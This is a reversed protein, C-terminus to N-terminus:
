LTVGVADCHDWFMQLPRPRFVEETLEAREIRDLRFTRPAARDMDWAILYWFPWALLLAQAELRRDSRAGDGAAYTLKLRLSRVFAAPVAHRVGPREPQRTQQVEESVPTAVRIRRRLSDIRARASPAFARAIQARVNSLSSTLSLGLAESAAMAILLEIAQSERLSLPAYSVSDRALRVGGGPGREGDILTGRDRLLQLDRAVTRKSVGLLAALEEVSHSRGEALRAALGDLRELRVLVSAASM